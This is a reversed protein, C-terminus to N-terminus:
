SDVSLAEYKGRYFALAGEADGIQWSGVAREGDSTRVYVTGDEAVRGWPEQSTASV